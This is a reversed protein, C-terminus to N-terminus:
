HGRIQAVVLSPSPSLFRAFIFSSIRSFFFAHLHVVTVFTLYGAARSGASLM